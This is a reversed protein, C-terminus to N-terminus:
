YWWYLFLSDITNEEFDNKEFDNEYETVIEQDLEPQEVDLTPTTECSHSAGM